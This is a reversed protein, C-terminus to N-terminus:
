MKLATRFCILASIKKAKETEGAQVHIKMQIPMLPIRHFADPYRDCYVNVYAEVQGFKRETYAKRIETLLLAAEGM